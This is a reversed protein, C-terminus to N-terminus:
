RKEIHCGADLKAAANKILWIVHIKLPKKLHDGFTLMAIHIFVGKLVVAKGLRPWRFWNSSSRILSERSIRNKNIKLIADLKWYPPLARFLIM